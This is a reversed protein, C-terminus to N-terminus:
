LALRPDINRDPTQLGAAAFPFNDWVPLEMGEWGPATSGLEAPDMFSWMDLVGNPTPMDSGGSVPTMSINGPDSQNRQHNLSFLKSVYPNKNQQEQQLLRRRQEIANQLFTLIEYYHAAQASQESLAELIAIAGNFAEDLVSDTGNKSFLSFGLVLAAAFVFAKLICMNGLLLGSQHVEVCTQIMYLASDACAAALRSHAPDEQFAEDMAAGPRQLRALRVGLVSILFPRTIIIIAFHYSCATHLCGIIREQATFRESDIPPPTRLSEPLNESWGKLKGLLSEARETSATKDGYLGVVIEDLIQSMHFSAVLSAELHYDQQRTSPQNGAPEPRLGTTAPPRGLISSVLLDLTCLSMWVRTRQRKEDAPISEPSDSVHLGLAAAARVAIGIYMFAANRRCAGLMYFSMLLFVRVLELSPNELMNDFAIRQGRAFFFREAQVSTPNSRRSQAGIAVIIDRLATNAGPHNSNPQPPENLIDSSESDTLVHIFGSTAIHYTRIFVRQQDLDVDDITLPVDRPTETELMDESKINHSFLSPGIYQTVTDRLLQLFSLSAAKGIFVREGQRNRLMRPHTRHPAEPSGPAAVADTQRRPTAPRDLPPLAIPNDSGAIPLSRARSSGPTTSSSADQNPQFRRVFRETPQCPRCSETRGSKICSACPFRGNCRRHSKRCSSCAEEARLRNSPSVKRRPM